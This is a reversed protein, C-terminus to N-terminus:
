PRRSGPYGRWSMGGHRAWPRPESDRGVAVRAFRAAVEDQRENQVRVLEYIQMNRPIPKPRERVPAVALKGLLAGAVPAGSRRKPANAVM